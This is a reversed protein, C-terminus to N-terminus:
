LYQAYPLKGLHLFFLHCEVDLLISGLIALIGNPALWLLSQGIIEITLCAVAVRAGGFKDPYHAFFLRMIIYGAGFASLALSRKGL